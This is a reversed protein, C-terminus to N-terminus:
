MIDNHEPKRKEELLNQWGLVLHNDNKSEPSNRKNNLNYEAMKNLASWALALHSGEANTAFRNNLVSNVITSM